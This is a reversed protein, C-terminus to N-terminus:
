SHIGRYRFPIASPQLHDLLSELRNDRSRLARSRNDRARLARLRSNRAKSPYEESPPGEGRAGIARRSRRKSWGNSQRVEQVRVGSGVPSGSPGRERESSPSTVQHREGSVLPEYGTTLHDLLAERHAHGLLEEHGGLTSLNWLGHNWSVLGGRLWQM